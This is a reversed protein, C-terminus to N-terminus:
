RGLHTLDFPRGRKSTLEWFEPGPKRHVKLLPNLALRKLGQHKRGGRRRSGPHSRKDRGSSHRHRERKDPARHHGARSSTHHDRERHHGGGRDPDPPRHSGGSLPKHDPSKPLSRDRTEEESEEGEQSAEEKTVPAPAATRSRRRPLSSREPERTTRRKPEAALVTEEARRHGAPAGTNQRALGASLSRLAKVQRAANVVLDGALVRACQELTLHGPQPLDVAPGQSALRLPPSLVPLFPRQLHGFDSSVRLRLLFAGTVVGNKAESPLCQRLCLRLRSAGTADRGTAAMFGCGNSALRMLDPKPEAHSPAAQIEGAVASTKPIEGHMAGNVGWRELPEGVLAELMVEDLFASVNPMALNRITQSSSAAVVQPQVKSLSLCRREGRSIIWSTTHHVGGREKIRCMVHTSMSVGTRGTMIKQQRLSEKIDIDCLEFEELDEEIAEQPLELVYSEAPGFRLIMQFCVFHPACVAMFM